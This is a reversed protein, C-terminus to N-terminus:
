DQPQGDTAADAAAPIAEEGLAVIVQTARRRLGATAEPDDILARLQDIAAGTDGQELALMALQEQALLSFPAGPRALTELQLRRSDADVESGRIMLAKLTALQRLALPADQVAAAEDLVNAAAADEGAAQLEGARLMLAMAGAGANDLQVDALAEARVAPEDAALATLLADGAAQAAAADRAKRWEQFAAGGVILLVALVAIWGYRRMAAFLRDRRVEETVEDIFSDSDSM